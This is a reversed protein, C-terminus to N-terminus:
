IMGGYNVIPMASKNLYDSLGMEEPYDCRKSISM